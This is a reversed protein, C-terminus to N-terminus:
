QVNAMEIPQHIAFGYGDKGNSIVTVEYYYIGCQPSIMHDARAAAAEHDHTKSMGVYRLEIGDAVIELGGFKDTDAWRSPLPTLGDDDPPPQQEIIEHTMGRHSPALKHLSLSSSSTSLSGQGSTHASQLERQNAAKTRHAAELREMYKSGQLYTPRFFGNMNAGLSSTLGYGQSHVYHNPYHHLGGARAWSGPVDVIDEGKTEWGAASHSQRSHDVPSPPMYTPSSPTPNTSHSFTGSRDSSTQHYNSVAATGAAVSAYSSRRPMIGVSSNSYSIPPAGPSGQSRNTM